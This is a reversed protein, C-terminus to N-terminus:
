NLLTVHAAVAYWRGKRKEYVDMYCTRVTTTQNASRVVATIKANVIGITGFLRINVTDVKTSLFEIGPSMLATLMEKKGIAKGVPNTLIIDEAFVRGMTASDKKMYSGIWDANLKKLLYADNDQALCSCSFFIGILIFFAKM